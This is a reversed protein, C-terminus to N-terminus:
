NLLEDVEKDIRQLVESLLQPHDEATDRLEGGWKRLMSTDIKRSSNGKCWERGIKYGLETLREKQEEREHASTNMLIDSAIQEWGDAFFNGKLFTVFWERENETMDSVDYKGASIQEHGVSAEAITAAYTQPVAWIAMLIVLCNTFIIKKM